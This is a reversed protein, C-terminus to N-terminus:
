CVMKGTIGVVYNSDPINISGKCLACRPIPPKGRNKKSM